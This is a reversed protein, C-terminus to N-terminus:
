KHAEMIGLALAFRGARPWVYSAVTQTVARYDVAAPILVETGDVDVADAPDFAAEIAMAAVGNTLIGDTSEGTRVIIIPATPETGQPVLADFELYEPFTGDPNFKPLKNKGPLKGVKVHYRATRGETDVYEVSSGRTDLKIM